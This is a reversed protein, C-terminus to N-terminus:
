AVHLCGDFRLFFLDHLLAPHRDPVSGVRDQPHWGYCEHALRTWRGTHSDEAADTAQAGVAKQDGAYLAQASGSAGARGPEQVATRRHTEAPHHLCHAQPHNGACPGPLSRVVVAKRRHLHGRRARQRLQQPDPPWGADLHAPRSDSAAHVDWNRDFVLSHGCHLDRIQVINRWDMVSFSDSAQGRGCILLVLNHRDIVDVPTDAIHGM